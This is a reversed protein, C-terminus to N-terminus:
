NVSFVRDFNEETQDVLLHNTGPTAGNNFAYDLRGFTQITFPVIRKVQEPQSLDAQIFVACGGDRKIDNVLLRGERRRRGTIVVKAGLDALRRATAAGIGSTGGTILAVRGAFELHNKSVATVSKAFMHSPRRRPSERVITEVIHAADQGVGFLLGSKANRLWP